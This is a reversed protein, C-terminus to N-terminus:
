LYKTRQEMDKYLKMLRDVFCLIGDYCSLACMQIHFVLYVKGPYFVRSSRGPPVFM